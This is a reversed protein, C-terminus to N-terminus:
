NARDQSDQEAQMKKMYESPTANMHKKFSRSFYKPDNFGTQYAIEAITFNGSKMLQVSRKIRMEQVFDIPTLGLTSKIKNYFVTRGMKMADAFQDITLEANDINKEIFAMVEQIFLEDAPTIDPMDPEISRRTLANGGQSLLDMFHRQLRKRQQILAAVRAKLYASSFPKLVYDDVGMEIGHIKDDMAGKATLAIVPVAYLDPDEKFRHIMEFGDMRPMMIDTIILDPWQQKGVTLGEQGDTATLVQYDASLIKSIFDRLEDNDEVVLIKVTDTDEQQAEDSTTLSMDEQFQSSDEIRFQVNQDQEFHHKGRKFTLIFDSGRGPQSDVEIRAHHLQVFQKVLALGIGSSPKFLNNQMITEFRQFLKDIDEKRIGKGQDSVMIVTEEKGNSSTTRVKLTISKGNDTYKFANSLLNFCIKELKDRDAWLPPMDEPCDLTFNIQHDRALEHFNEMIGELFPRLQIEEVLITMKDNQLKRFDLIQNVLNLLRRVNKQVVELYYRSQDSLTQDELVEGVPGDILTLPTRLEHSIDTFFRLKTNTNEQEVALEHRLRYARSVYYFITCVLLLSLLMLLLRGALTERFRPKVYLPLTQENDIWLGDANTSRVHFTHQGIPLNVYTVSTSSTINWNHDVGELRYAYKLHRKDRYDLATFRLEFSRSNRTQPSNVSLNEVILPPLIVDTPLMDTEIIFLGNMTGQILRSGSMVPLAESFTIKQPFANVDYISVQSSKHTPDDDTFTNRRLRSICQGSIVWLNDHPDEIASYAVDSALGDNKTLSTFRLPEDLLHDSRNLIQCIGGSNTTLVISSDHTVLISMIDNDPLSNLDNPQKAYHVTRITEPSEFRNEFVFLGNRAGVMMVGPRVECLCRVTEPLDTSYGLHNAQHYFIGDKLLNVGGGFTAIWLQGYVDEIIHYINDSSLSEPHEENHRYHVMREPKDIRGEPLCYLGGGKSGIWLNHHSDEFLCYATGEITLRGIVTGQRDLCVVGQNRLGLWLQGRHDELLARVESGGSPQEFV